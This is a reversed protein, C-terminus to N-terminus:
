DSQITYSSAIAKRNQLFEILGVLNRVHELEEIDVDDIQVYFVDPKKNSTLGNKVVSLQDQKHKNGSIRSGVEIFFDIGFAKFHFDPDTISKNGQKPSTDQIRILEYTLKIDHPDLINKLALYVRRERDSLKELNNPLSLSGHKRPYIRLGFFGLTFIFFPSLCIIVQGIKRENQM